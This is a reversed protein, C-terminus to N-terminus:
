VSIIRNGGIFTAFERNLNCMYRKPTLSLRAIVCPRCRTTVCGPRPFGALATESCRVCNLGHFKVGALIGKSTRCAVGFSGLSIEMAVEKTGVITRSRAVRIRARRPSRGLRCEPRNGMCNRCRCDEMDVVSGHTSAFRAAVAKM